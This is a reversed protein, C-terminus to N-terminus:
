EEVETAPPNLFRDLLRIAEYLGTINSGITKDVEYLVNGQPNTYHLTTTAMGGKRAIALTPEKIYTEARRAHYLISELTERQKRTLSAM